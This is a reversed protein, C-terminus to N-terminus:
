RIEGKTTETQTFNDLGGTPLDEFQWTGLATVLGPESGEDAPKVPMAVEDLLQLTLRRQLEAVQMTTVISQAFVVPIRSM